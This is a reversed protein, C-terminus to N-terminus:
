ADIETLVFEYTCSTIRKMLNQIDERVIIIQVVETGHREPTDVLLLREAGHLLGVTAM